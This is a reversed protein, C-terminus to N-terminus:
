AAQALARANVRKPQGWLWGVIAGFVFNSSTVECFHVWRVSDPFVPNPVLLPAVGSLLTFTAGVALAGSVRPLGLIRTIVLCLVVFVPGRVLLQLAIITGPSPLQQTAYFEKVFPFIIMGATYYLVLYSIDSLAFKWGRESRAKSQIPHYHEPLGDKSKGFLLTWVPITLASSLLTFLFIRGWQLDANKLFVTGELLNVSTITLPILALVTGLKWGRWDSRVALVALTATILATTLVLWQMLHPVPSSRIPILIGCLAQILLTAIFAALSRLIIGIPKM